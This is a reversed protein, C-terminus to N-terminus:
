VREKYRLCLRTQGMMLEDGKGLSQVHIRSGNKYTGNTSNLDEIWWSGDAFWLRAHSKSVRLDSLTLDCRPTRGVIFPKKEDLEIEKGKDVGDIVELVVETSPVAADARRVGPYQQTQTDFQKGGSVPGDPISVGIETSELVEERFSVKVHIRGPSLSDDAVLLLELPGAFQYGRKRAISACYSKIDREVTRQIPTLAEMDMPHLHVHFVNPVYVAEVSFSQKQEMSRALVKAIEVPQVRTNRKRPFLREVFSELGEELNSLFSVGDIAGRAEGCNVM